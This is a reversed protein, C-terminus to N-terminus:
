RLLVRGLSTQGQVTSFVPHGAYSCRLFWMFWMLMFSSCSFDAFTRHLDLRIEERSICNILCYLLSFNVARHKLVQSINALSWCRPRCHWQLRTVVSHTFKPFFDVVSKYSPRERLL